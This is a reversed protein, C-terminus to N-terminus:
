NEKEEGYEVLNNSYLTNIVQRAFNEYSDGAYWVCDDIIEKLIQEKDKTSLNNISVKGNKM